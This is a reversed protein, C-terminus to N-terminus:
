RPPRHWCSKSPALEVQLTDVINAALDNVQEPSLGQFLPRFGNLLVDLDLAPTTMSMPITAGPALHNGEDAPQTLEVYRDGLLNEYRVLLRTQDTLHQDDRVHFHVRVRNGAEMSLDDVQGVRVGAVKVLDGPELGSVDAMVASYDNSPGLSVRGLTLYLLGAVLLGIVAFVALKTAEARIKV